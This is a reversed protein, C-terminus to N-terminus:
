ILNLKSKTTCVQRLFGSVLSFHFLQLIWHKRAELREGRGINWNHPMGRKKHFRMSYMNLKIGLCRPRTRAGTGGECTEAFWGGCDGFSVWSSPALIFLTSPATYHPIVHRKSRSRRRRFSCWLVRIRIRPSGMVYVRYGVTVASRSVTPFLLISQTNPTQSTCLDLEKSSHTAIAEILFECCLNCGIRM